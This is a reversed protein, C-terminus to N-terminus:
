TQGQKMLAPHRNIAADLAVKLTIEGSPEPPMSARGPEDPDNLVAQPPKKSVTEEALGIAPIEGSIIVIAMGADFVLLFVEDETRINDQQRSYQDQRTPLHVLVVVPHFLTTKRKKSPLDKEPTKM